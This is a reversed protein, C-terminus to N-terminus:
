ASLSVIDIVLLSNKRAAEGAIQQDTRMGAEPPERSM